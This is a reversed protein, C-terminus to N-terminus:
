GYVIFWGSNVFLVHKFGRYVPGIV